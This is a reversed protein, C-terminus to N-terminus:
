HDRSDRAGGQQSLQQQAQQALQQYRGYMSNEIKTLRAELQAKRERAKTVEHRMITEREQGLAFELKMEALENLVAEHEKIDVVTRKKGTGSGKAFGGGDGGEGGEDGAGARVAAALKAAAAAAAAAAASADSAAKTLAAADLASSAGTATATAMASGSGSGGDAGATTDSAFSPGGASHARAREKLEQMLVKNAHVLEMQRDSLQLADHQLADKERRLGENDQRLQRTLAEGDDVKRQLALIRDESAEVDQILEQREADWAKMLGAGPGDRLTQVAEELQTIQADREAVSRQAEDRAAEAVALRSELAATVDPAVESNGGFSRERAFELKETADQHLTQLRDARAEAAQQRQVAADRAAEAAAVADARGNVGNAAGAQKAEALQNRLEALTMQSEGLRQTLMRNREREAALEGVDGGGALPAPSADVDARAAAQAMAAGAASAAAHAASIERRAGGGGDAGTRTTDSTGHVTAPHAGLPPGRTAAQGPTSADVTAPGTGAGGVNMFSDAATKKQRMPPVPIAPMSLPPQVVGGGPGDTLRYAGPAEPGAEADGAEEGDEDPLALLTGSARSRWSKRGKMSFAAPGTAALGEMLSGDEGGAPGLASLGAASPGVPLSGPRSSSSGGRRHSSTGSSVTGLAGPPPTPSRPVLGSADDVQEGIENGFIERTVSGQRNPRSRAASAANGGSFGAMLDLTNSSTGQAVRPVPASTQAPMSFADDFADEMSDNMSMESLSQESLNGSHVAGVVHRVRPRQRPPDADGPPAAAADIRSAARPAIAAAAASTVTDAATRGPPELFGGDPSRPPGPSPVRSPGAPSSGSSAASAQRSLGKSPPTFRGSRGGSAPSAVPLFPPREAGIPMTKAGGGGSTAGDASAGSSSRGGAPSLRPIGSTAAGAAAHTGSGARVPGGPSPIQRGSFSRSRTTAAASRPGTSVPALQESGPEYDSFGSLDQELVTSMPGTNGSYRSMNTLGDLAMKAQVITVTVTGHVHAIRKLKTPVAMHFKQPIDAINPAFQALDLTAEGLILLKDTSPKEPKSPVQLIVQYRKAEFQGEATRYMTVVFSLTEQIDCRGKASPQLNTIQTKPSRKLVARCHKVKSPLGDIYEVHFDFRFKCAASVGSGRRRVSNSLRRLM